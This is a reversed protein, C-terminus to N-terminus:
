ILGEQDTPMAKAMNGQQTNPVSKLNRKPLIKEIPMVWVRQTRGELRVPKGASSDSGELEVYGLDRLQTAISRESGELPDTRMENKIFSVVTKPYLYIYEPDKEGDKVTGIVTGHENNYGPLGKIAARGTLLSEKLMQLFVLGNQEDSCRQIMTDRIERCYQYHRQKMETAEEALVVQQTYMFDVFM